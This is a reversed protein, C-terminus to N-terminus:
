RAYSKEGNILVKQNDVVIDLKEGRWKISFEISDWEDPLCPDFKLGEETFTLGAFGFVLSMWVGGLSAIHIGGAANGFADGIDIQANKLFYKYASGVKGARAAIISHISPSLSSGHGCRREYYDYNTALDKKSFRERFLFMFMLVDAQKIVQSKQTRERGLIIDMPASRPEYKSIDIYELDYFGKFQEYLKTKADFGLYIHDRYNEWKKTEKDEIGLKRKAKIAVDFNNMALYNTYANDDIVEHYEDPGIVENIHYLGDDGEVLLSECFRATEFIMEAGYSILFEDDQTAEWYKWVTYAIDPSIHIEYRGSHIPVIEGNPLFAQSPAMELGSDTSEWAYSAGKRGERIANQQAGKLTNYRYMLLAKAIEPKTLIFFPINYMEADWFVHGKYSEGSLNRAPISCNNGSFEGSVILHYIAFDSLKQDYKNGNITIRSENWRKEWKYCHNQFSKDFSGDPRDLVSCLSKISYDKGVEARWEFNEFSGSYLNEIDYRYRLDEEFESKHLMFFQKDSYKSKMHVSARDELETGMNLLYGFDATDCDIGTVVKLDGSYNEPRIMLWKGFETKKALSIFKLIKINTVRGQKDKNLWERVAVGKEFDISRSHYLVEHTQLNLMEGDLYIQIRTWDPAKVLSNFEDDPARVYTNAIFSGPNCDPYYEELSNRTGIYGNGLSLIAEIERERLYSVSKEFTISLKSVIIM